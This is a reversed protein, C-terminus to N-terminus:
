KSPSAQPTEQLFCDEPGEEDNWLQPEARRISRAAEDQVSSMTFIFHALSM